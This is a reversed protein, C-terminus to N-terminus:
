QRTLRPTHKICDAIAQRSPMAPIAGLKTAALSGAANAFDMLKYIEKEGMSRPNEENELIFSLAAGWFADGSGTTDICNTDFTESYFCGNENICYCGDPGCTVALLDLNYNKYLKQMGKKIDETNTLFFLEEESLKVINSKSIGNLISKKARDLNDWLPVRLNPDFSVMTGFKIALDVAALTASSSPETPLSVAGFHLIKASKVSDPSIHEPSLMVDATQNRYFNFSRNGTKDLSVVALTTPFDLTLMQSTDIKANAIQTKLFGGFPDNGVASILATKKGLQSLMALVNAPAGGPNGELFVKTEDERYLLDVLSEGVALVDLSYDM